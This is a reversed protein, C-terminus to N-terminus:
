VAGEFEVAEGAAVVAAAEELAFAAGLFDVVAMLRRPSSPSWVRCDLELKLSRTHGDCTRTLALFREARLINFFSDLRAHQQQPDMTGHSAQLHRPAFFGQGTPLSACAQLFGWTLLVGEWQGVSELLRRLM